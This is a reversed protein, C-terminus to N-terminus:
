QGGPRRPQGPQPPAIQGPLLPQQVPAIQGPMLPQQAPAVQGPIVPQQQPPPAVMGPVAVGGYPATPTAPYNPPTQQESPVGQPGNPGNVPQGTQPNIVQPQPFTNFMPGRPNPMQVNPNPREEENEDDSPPQPFQPQHFVPQQQAVTATRPASSTPMVIIRDFHSLNSAFVARPAAVYGAATRLLTDLAQTEPVNVLELTVPGGPIREVNVVKAQGVRAWEAVIQRITADKAVITVLGDHISVQVDAYAPAAAFVLLSAAFTL